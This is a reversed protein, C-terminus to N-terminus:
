RVEAKAQVRVGCKALAELADGNAVQEWTVPLYVWGAAAIAQAKLVDRLWGKRSLHSFGMGQIEVAYCAGDRVAVDM